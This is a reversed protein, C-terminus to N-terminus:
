SVKIPPIIVPIDHGDAQVDISGVYTVVSLLTVIIALLLIIKKMM